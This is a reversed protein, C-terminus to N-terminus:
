PLIDQKIFSLKRTFLLPFPKGIRFVAWGHPQATEEKNAAPSPNSGEELKALTTGHLACLRRINDVPFSM